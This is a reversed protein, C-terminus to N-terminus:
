ERGSERVRQDAHQRARDAQMRHRGLFTGGQGCMTLVAHLRHVADRGCSREATPQATESSPSAPATHQASVKSYFEDLAADFTPFPRSPRGEQQVLQLPEYDDYVLDAEDEPAAAAEAAKAAEAAAAAAARQKRSEGACGNGVQSACLM